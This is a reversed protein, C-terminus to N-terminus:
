ILCHKIYNICFFFGLWYAKEETDIIDFVTQDIRCRNQQNVVEYGLKKLHTSITQRRIGYKEELKTLSRDKEPTNIYEEIALAITKQKEERNM